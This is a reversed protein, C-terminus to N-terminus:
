TSSPAAPIDDDRYGMAIREAREDWGNQFADREESTQYNPRKYHPEQHGAARWGEMWAEKEAATKLKGV